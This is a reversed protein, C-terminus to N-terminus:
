APQPNVQSTWVTESRKSAKDWGIASELHAVGARDAIVFGVTTSVARSLSVSVLVMAAVGKLLIVEVSPSLFGPHSIIGADFIREFRRYAFKSSTPIVLTSTMWIRRPLANKVCNRIGLVTEHLDPSVGWKTGGSRFWILDFHTQPRNRFQPLARDELMKLFLLRNREIYAAGFVPQRGAARNATESTMWAPLDFNGEPALKEGLATAGTLRRFENYGATSPEPGKLARYADMMANSLPRYRASQHVEVDLLHPIVRPHPEFLLGESGLLLISGFREPLVESVSYLSFRDPSEVRRVDRLYEAFNSEFAAKAFETPLNLAAGDVPIPIGNSLPRSRDPRMMNRSVLDFWLRDVWADTELIKIEGEESARFHEHSSPHLEANDGDIVILSRSLLDNVVINTELESLGLYSGLRRIQIKECLKLVRLVFEDVVPIRKDRTVNATVLFRRCPVNFGFTCIPELQPKLRSM